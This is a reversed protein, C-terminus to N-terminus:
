LASGVARVGARKRWTGAGDARLSRARDLQRPANPFTERGLPLFLSPGAEVHRGPTRPTDKM